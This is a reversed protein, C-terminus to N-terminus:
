QAGAFTMPQAGLQAATYIQAFEEATTANDLQEQVEPPVPSPDQSAAVLAAETPSLNQNQGQPPPGLFGQGQGQPTQPPGQQVQGMFPQSSGGGPGMTFIPRYPDYPPANQMGQMLFGRGAEAGPTRQNAAALMQSQTNYVPAMAAVYAGGPGAPIAAKATKDVFGTFNETNTGQAVASARAEQNQSLEDNILTNASLRGRERETDAALMAQQEQAARSKDVGALGSTDYIEADVANRYVDEGIVGKDLLYKWMGLRAEIGALGPAYKAQEITQMLAEIQTATLDTKAAEFAISTLDKPISGLLM